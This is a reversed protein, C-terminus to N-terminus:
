SLVAPPRSHSMKTHDGESEWHRLEGHLIRRLKRPSFSVNRVAQGDSRTEREHTHPRLGCRLAKKVPFLLETWEGRSNRGPMKFKDNTGFFIGATPMGNM